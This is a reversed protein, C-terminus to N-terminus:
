WRSRRFNIIKDDLFEIEDEFLLEITNNVEKKLNLNLYNIWEPNKQNSTYSYLSIGYIWEEFSLSGFKSYKWGRNNQTYKFSENAGFVGFGFGISLLDIFKDEILSKKVDNLILKIVILERLFVITM